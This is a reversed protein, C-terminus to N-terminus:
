ERKKICTLQKKPVEFEYDRPIYKGMVGNLYTIPIYLIADKPECGEAKRYTVRLTSHADPFIRSDTNLELQAKMYTRRLATITQYIKNHKPAILTKYSDALENGFLYRPNKNLNALVTAANETLVEKLSNYSTLRSNSYITTALNKADSNELSKRLFQKPSKTTYLAM